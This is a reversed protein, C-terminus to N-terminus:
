FLQSCYLIQPGRHMSYPDSSPETIQVYIDKLAHKGVGNGLLSTAKRVESSM